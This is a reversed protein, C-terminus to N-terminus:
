LSLNIGTQFIFPTSDNEPDLGTYPTIVFVNSASMYIRLNSAKIKSLINRDFSYGLQLNQLRFFGADEVWRDSMRNNGSPDSSIARPMETSPNSSTWRDGVSTLYNVGGANMAEGSRRVGNISQVDGVGRFTIGLDVGGYNLNINIGYYYGPITKGLYDQDLGNIVGDAGATRYEGEAADDGVPGYLDQFIIDGPGKQNDNGSDSTGSLFADVEAQTQFIGDTRYGRIFNIPYGVEIRSEGGQPLNKYLKTVKNDVTTFNINSNLRLKGFNQNYGLVFEFGKNEVTALNVVPRNLAGIVLPIDIVQLIGETLREYYEATFSIRNNFLWSDFGFNTTTVTEWSLDLIPFDGLVAAPVINGEGPGTSGLVYKPNFNVLSLFAFDRTEQNGTQGWGARIKLDDIFDLSGLFPESSIRWAGAFSPFTGWKYGEGFKSSGDRRITADLYYTNNYNYSVRGMYGQLGNRSREYFLAKNDAPLGEEIRRQDFDTLGTQDAGFQTNNWKTRQDMANLILDFNHNGFSRNYGILFESVLNSNENIRRGFTTGDGNITGQGANFLGARPDSYQERINSFLDFSFTGRFRLGKLPSIEAYFAGLSRQLTRENWLHEAQGLFNNRTSNGYGNSRFSGAVNRGPLAFGDPGASDFLPQWPNILSSNQISSGSEQSTESYVMRFTQGVKLWDTVSHDSNLYFSFRDYASAFLANEQSAFGAGAAYNSRATGGTVSLNHDQIPANKVVTEEMWNYTPSNGLYGPSSPDYLSGFDNDALSENQNNDYAERYLAAYEETSLVDYRKNINQIGYTSSFNIRPKGEKGRKTQILIVGNSARVGYIATASADKLVTISEIDNPNILNFVNVNGRLDQDRSSSSAAGGEIVPVGDIVYLPDNFGLTSVGRIRVQPRALPDSGPNSVFVGAMKGQMALQPNLRTENNLEEGSLKAVAGTLDKSRRSGYGIVVVEELDTVDEALVANIVNSVGISIEQALFGTYSFLLQQADEGVDLSYTGDVDTATGLSTGSIIVTAGILPTGEEDTVTGTITRNQALGWQFSILMLLFLLQNKKKM